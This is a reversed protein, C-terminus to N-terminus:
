KKLPNSGYSVHASTVSSYSVGSLQSMPLRAQRRATIASDLNTAIRELNDVHIDGKSVFADAGAALWRNRNEDSSDDSMGKIVLLDYGIKRMASCVEHGLEASGMNTDMVVADYFEGQSIRDMAESGSSATDVNYGALSFLETYLLRHVSMDDVVLVNTQKRTAVRM